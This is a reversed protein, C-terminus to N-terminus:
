LPSHQKHRFLGNLVYSCRLCHNYHFYDPFYSSFPQNFKEFYLVKEQNLHRSVHTLCVSVFITLVSIVIHSVGCFTSTHDYSIYVKWLGVEAIRDM